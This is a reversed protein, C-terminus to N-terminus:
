CFSRCIQWEDHVFVGTYFNKQTSSSQFNQRFRSPVGALFDGASAFNFTGSLDALDVFTSRVHHVDAGFKLSHDGNIFSLVNQM